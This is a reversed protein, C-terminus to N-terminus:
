KRAIVRYLEPDEDRYPSLGRGEVADVITFGYRARLADGFMPGNQYRRYHDAHVKTLEEDKDTRFEAALM